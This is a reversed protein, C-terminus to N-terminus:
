NNASAATASLAESPDEESSTSSTEQVFPALVEGLPGPYPNSNVSTMEIPSDYSLPSYQPTPTPSPPPNPHLNSIPFDYPETPDFSPSLLPQQFSQQPLFYFGIRPSGAIYLNGNTPDVVFGQEEPMELFIVLTVMLRNEALGGVNGTASGPGLRTCLTRFSTRM